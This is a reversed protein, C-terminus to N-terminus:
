SQFIILQLTKLIKEVRIKEKGKLITWGQESQKRYRLKKNLKSHRTKRHQIGSVESNHIDLESIINEAKGLIDDSM